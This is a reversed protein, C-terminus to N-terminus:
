PINTKIVERTLSFDGEKKGENKRNLAQILSVGRSIYNRAEEESFGRLRWKVIQIPAISKM